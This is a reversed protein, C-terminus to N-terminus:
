QNWTLGNNRSFSLASELGSTGCYAVQGDPSWVVRAGFRGTPPKSSIQWAPNVSSPSFSCYVQVAPYDVRSTAWVAGALLKGSRISGHYDLSGIADDPVNLHTCTSGDIRYIDDFSSAGRSGASPDDSWCAFIYRATPSAASFDAPLALDAGILPTGPTDEGAGSVEVPYSPFQNWAIGTGGLDRMGMYLYTDGGSPGSAGLALLASDFTYSPSYELAFVDFGTGSPPLWGATGTSMDQWSGSITGTILSLVRGGGNGTSTGVAVERTNGSYQPSVAICQVREGAQLSGSLGASIFTQGGDGTLYVDTRSNTVVALFGTDDPALGIEDWPPATNLAGSLNRWGLPGSDSRYLAPGASDLAYISNDYGMALRSVDSGPYLTIGGPFGNEEEEPPLVIVEAKAPVPSENGAADMCKVYFIYNGAKMGSYEVSTAPTYLSYGQENGELYYSYVLETVPTTDDSGTWQFRLDAPGPLPKPAQVISVSPPVTDPLPNEPISGGPPPPPPSIGPPASQMCGTCLSLPLLLCLLAAPWRFTRGTKKRGSLVVM